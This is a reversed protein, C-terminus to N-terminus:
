GPPNLRPHVETVSLLPTKLLIQAKGLDFTLDRPRTLGSEALTSPRVTPTPTRQLMGLIALGFDWRNLPQPGAIHLVGSYDIEVLELLALSLTEVWIPCRIEDTFLRVPEGKEMGELLWQTQHDPPDIGYILSPRVIVARPNLGSVETEAQAKAKGYPSLPSPPSEEQYPSNEGDFVMDTSVHIFHTGMSATIEALNRAAPLISTLSKQTQSSCATHIIASPRLRTLLHLVQDKDSLDCRHYTVRNSVPPATHLYSAHTDWQISQKVLHSGLYGAGGTIFLTKM